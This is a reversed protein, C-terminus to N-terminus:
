QRFYDVVVSANPVPIAQNGAVFPDTDVRRFSGGAMDYVDLVGPNPVAAFLFQPSSAALAGAGVGKVLSKGNYSLPNGASFVSAFNTLASLNRMNDFAIDVPIGSLGDDAGISAFVSFELQRIQPNTFPGPDLPITGITGGSIGVTSLAGGGLNTPNGQEDLPNEHVIWVASNLNTPDAQLTKPRDFRFPLSGIIDDFGFGNVGDPGSEFFAVRGNQNLIYGFYVGRLFGFAGQRPTLAVDIPRAIQNRLVKRVELTFGSIVSVTDEGQNCVFIDENGPEWAIGTPGSGVTTTKIVQHFTASSPDIDLFSVQDAGENTVALFDLNPSMALSTPDLLRIRDLVTFRNSNFVVIEGAVRDVVYLFHGVQQRVM